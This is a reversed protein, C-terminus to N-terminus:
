SAMSVHESQEQAEIRAARERAAEGAIVAQGGDPHLESWLREAEAEWGRAYPTTRECLSEASEPAVYDTAHAGSERVMQPLVEPNELM